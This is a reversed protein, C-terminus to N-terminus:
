IGAYINSNSTTGAPPWVYDDVSRYCDTEIREEVQSGGNLADVRYHRIARWARGDMDKRIDGRMFPSGEAVAYDIGAGRRVVIMMEKEHGGDALLEKDGWIGFDEMSLRDQPVEQEYIERTREDLVSGCCARQTSRYVTVSPGSTEGDRDDLAGQWDAPQPKRWFRREQTDDTFLPMTNAYGLLACSPSVFRLERWGSGERVLEDLTEYGHRYDADGLVTLTDLRLGPLLKLTSALSYCARFNSGGRFGLELKRGRVRLHRMKSLKEAPLATLADLMTVQDEFNFTVEGLWRDGIEYSARRCARLIALGHPSPRIRLRRDGSPDQREGHSIRTRAFLYSYVQDRLEQPLRFLPSSLQRDLVPSVVQFAM